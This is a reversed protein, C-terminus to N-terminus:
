TGEPRLTESLSDASLRTTAAKYIVTERKSNKLNKTKLRHWKLKINRPTPTKPYIKIPVRQAEQVQTDKGKVLNPFDKAMIKEFLNKIM